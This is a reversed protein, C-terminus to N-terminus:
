GLQGPDKVTEGVINSFAATDVNGPGDGGTNWKPTVAPGDGLRGYVAREGGPRNEILLLLHDGPRLEALLALCGPPSGPRDAEGLIQCSSLFLSHSRDSPIAPQFQDDAWGTSPLGGHEGLRFEIESDLAALREPHSWRRRCGFYQGGFGAHRSVRQVLQQDFVGM